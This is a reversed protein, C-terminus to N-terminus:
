RFSSSHANASRHSGGGRRADQVDAAAVPAACSSERGLAVLHETEVRGSRVPRPKTARRELVEVVRLAEVGRHRDPRQM